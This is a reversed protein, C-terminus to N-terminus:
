NDCAHSRMSADVDFAGSSTKGMDTMVMSWAMDVGGCGGDIGNGPTVALFRPTGAHKADNM